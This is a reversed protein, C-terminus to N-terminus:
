EKHIRTRTLERKVELLENELHYKDEMEKELQKQLQECRKQVGATFEKERELEVTIVGIKELAV